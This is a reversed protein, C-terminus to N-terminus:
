GAKKLPIRQLWLQLAQVRLFEQMEGPADPDFGAMICRFRMEQPKQSEAKLRTTCSPMVLVSCLGM